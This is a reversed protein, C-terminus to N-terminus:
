IFVKLWPYGEATCNFKEVYDLKCEWVGSDSSRLNRIHIGCLHDGHRRDQKRSGIFQYNHLNRQCKQEIEFYKTTENKTQTFTCSSNDSWRVWRCHNWSYDDDDLHHRIGCFLNKFDGEARLYKDRSSSV